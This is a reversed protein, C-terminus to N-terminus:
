RRVEVLGPQASVDDDLFALADANRRTIKFLNRYVVKQTEDGQPAFAKFSGLWTVQADACMAYLYDELWHRPSSKLMALGFETPMEAEGTEFFMVKQSKNWVAALMESAAELGYGRVWHHWVSLLLVLDVNPLLRITDPTLDMKCFGVSHARLQRAAHQAIRVLRDDRDVGLTPIGKSALSFCFYGVNCGIDLASDIASGSTADNLTSEIAAWRAETGAGRKAKKLGLWPLPQYYLTPFVDFRFQLADITQQVKDRISM